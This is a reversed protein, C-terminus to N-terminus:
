RSEIWGLGNLSSTEAQAKHAKCGPLQDLTKVCLMRTEWEPQGKIQRQIETGVLRKTRSPGCSSGTQRRDLQTRPELKMLPM